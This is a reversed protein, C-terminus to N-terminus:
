QTDVSKYHVILSSSDSCPRNHGQPSAKELIIPEMSEIRVDIWFVPLNPGKETLM